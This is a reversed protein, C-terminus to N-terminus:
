FSNNLKYQQYDRWMGKASSAWFATMAQATIDQRALPPEQNEDVGIGEERDKRKEEEGQLKDYIDDGTQGSDDFSTTCHASPTSWDTNRPSHFNVDAVL